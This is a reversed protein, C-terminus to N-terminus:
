RGLWIDGFEFQDHPEISNVSFFHALNELISAVLSDFFAVPYVLQWPCDIMGHYYPESGDNSFEFGYGPERFEHVLGNRYNYFLNVYQCRAVLEAQKKNDALSELWGKEPSEHLRIIHGEPWDSLKSCVETYLHGTSEEHSQELNLKLQPLSIRNQSSWGSLEKIVRSVKERHTGEKGFCARSFPDLAVAYLVKRHLVSKVLRISNLQDNFHAIFTDASENSM